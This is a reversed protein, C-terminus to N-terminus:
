NTDAVNSDIDFLFVAIHDPHDIRRVNIVRPDDGIKEIVEFFKRKKLDSSLDDKSPWVSLMRDGAEIAETVWRHKRVKNM